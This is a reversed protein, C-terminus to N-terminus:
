AITVLTIAVVVGVKWITKWMVVGERRRAAKSKAGLWMSTPNMTTHSSTYGQPGTTTPATVKPAMDSTTPETGTTVAMVSNPSTRTVSWINGSTSYYKDIFTQEYSQCTSNDFVNDDVFALPSWTSAVAGWQQIFFKMNQEVIETLM